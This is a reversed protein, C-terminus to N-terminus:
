SCHLDGSGLDPYLAVLVIRIAVCLKKSSKVSNGFEVTNFNLKHMSFTRDSSVGLGGISVTAEWRSRCVCVCLVMCTCSTSYRQVADRTMKGDDEAVILVKDLTQRLQKAAVSWQRSAFKSLRNQGETLNTLM